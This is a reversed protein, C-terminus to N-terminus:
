SHGIRLSAAVGSRTRMIRPFPQPHEQGTFTGNLRCSCGIPRSFFNPVNEAMNGPHYNSTFVQSQTFYGVFGLKLGVMASCCTGWIIKSYRKVGRSNCPKFYRMGVPCKGIKKQHKRLDRRKINQRCDIGLNEYIKLNTIVQGQEL